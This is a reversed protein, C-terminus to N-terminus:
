PGSTRFRLAVRLSYSLRRMPRMCLPCVVQISLVDMTVQTPCALCFSRAKLRDLSSHRIIVFAGWRALPLPLALALPFMAVDRGAGWVLRLLLLRFRPTLRRSLSLCSLANAFYPPTSAQVYMETRPWASTMGPVLNPGLLCSSTRVSCLRIAPARMSFSRCRDCLKCLVRKLPRVAPGKAAGGASVCVSMCRCM